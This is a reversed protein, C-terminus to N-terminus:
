WDEARTGLIVMSRQDVLLETAVLGPENLWFARVRDTQGHWEAPWLDEPTLDDLLIMGGPKVARLVTEPEDRKAESVDTFVLDFPGYALIDHWDGNLLHVNPYSGISVAAAATRAGDSEVTFFQTDPRLGDTIWAAGVGCGTGIEGITGGRVGAALVRLLRGVAPSCSVAFNLGAARQM